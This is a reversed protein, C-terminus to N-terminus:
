AIEETEVPQRLCTCGLVPVAFSDDAGWLDFREVRFRDGGLNNSRTTDYGFETLLEVLEPAAASVPASMQSYRGVAAQISAALRADLFNLPVTGHEGFVAASKM